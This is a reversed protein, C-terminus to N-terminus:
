LRGFLSQTCQGELAQRVERIAAERERLSDCYDALEGATAAVYYGLSSAILREVMGKVRIHNILARIKADSIHYGRSRMMARLETNTIAMTKGVRWSLIKALEPAVEKRDKDSLPETYTEFGKIMKNRM